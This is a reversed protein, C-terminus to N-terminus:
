SVEQLQVKNDIRCSLGAGWLISSCTLHNQLANWFCTRFGSWAWTNGLQVASANKWPALHKGSTRGIFPLLIEQCLWNLTISPNLASGTVWLFDIELHLIPLPLSSTSMSSFQVHIFSNSKSLREAREKEREKERTHIHTRARACVCVQWPTIQM